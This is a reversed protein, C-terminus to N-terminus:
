EVRCRTYRNKPDAIIWGGYISPVIISKESRMAETITVEDCVVIVGGPLSNLQNLAYRLKCPNNVTLGNSQASNTVYLVQVLAGIELYEVNEEAACVLTYGDMSFQSLASDPVAGIYKLHEYRLCSPQQM